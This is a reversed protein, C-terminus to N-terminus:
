SFLEMAIISIIDNYSEVLTGIILENPGNGLKNLLNSCPIVQFVKNCSLNSSEFFTYLFFM